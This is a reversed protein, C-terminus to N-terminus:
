FIEVRMHYKLGTFLPLRYGVQFRNHGTSRRANHQQYLLFLAIRCIENKVSRLGKNEKEGERGCVKNGKCKTM